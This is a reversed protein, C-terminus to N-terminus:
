GTQLNVTIKRRKAFPTWNDITNNSITLPVIYERSFAEDCKRKTGGERGEAPRRATTAHQDRREHVHNERTDRGTTSQYSRHGRGRSRVVSEPQLLQQKATKLAQLEENEKQFKESEEKTWEASQEKTWSNCERQLTALKDSGAKIGVNICQIAMNVESQKLADITINDDFDSIITVQCRLEPKNERLEKHIGMLVGFLYKIDTSRQFQPRPGMEGENLDNYGGEFFNIGAEVDYCARAIAKAGFVICIVGGYALPGSLQNLMRGVYRLGITKRTPSNLTDTQDMSSSDDFAIIHKCTELYRYVPFSCIDKQLVLNSKTIYVSAIKNILEQWNKCVQICATTAAFSQLGFITALLEQPADHWGYPILGNHVEM